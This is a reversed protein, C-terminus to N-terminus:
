EVEIEVRLKKSPELWDPLPKKYSHGLIKIREKTIGRRILGNGIKEAREQSLELNMQDSETQNNSRFLRNDSHGHITITSFNTTRLAAAIEDLQQISQQVNNKLIEAKGPKFIFNLFVHLSRIEGILGCDVILENITQRRSKDFLVLLSKEDIMSDEKTFAYLKQALLTEARAKSGSENKCAHLHAELSLLFYNQKYYTEGLGYWAKYYTRDYSLAQKYHYIAEQSQNGLIYALKTHVDPRDPCLQLSKALLTKRQSKLNQGEQEQLSYARFLLENAVECDQSAAVGSDVIESLGCEIAMQNLQQQRQKDYLVQLGEQDDLIDDSKTFTYSKEKLLAMVRAKSIEDHKCAHLHAELSLPIRKQKYYVEGLGHWAKYFNEDYRLAQKYYHIAEASRGQQEFIDALTTQADPNDPCLLLSETILLKRQSINHAPLAYARFLLDTALDCDQAVTQLSIIILLTLSLQRFIHQIPM